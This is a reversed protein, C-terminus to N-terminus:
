IRRACWAIGREVVTHFEPVTFTENDHGSQLCFVRANRFEHVWALTHMSRPHVTTLLIDCDSRPGRMEYTEDTMEWPSLGETIPHTPETVDVRLREGIHYDRFTEPHRGVVEDWFPWKPFALIAHHLVFVGQETEGLRELATKMDKDWWDTEGGPTEQHFNYFLVVDYEDRVGGADSVFDEMHQPYFDIDPMARFVTLFGPVDFPHRGTVVAATVRGDRKLSTGM